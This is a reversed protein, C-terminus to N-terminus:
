ELAVHTGKVSVSIVVLKPLRRSGILVSSIRTKQLELFQRRSPEYVQQYLQMTWPSQFEMGPELEKPLNVTANIRTLRPLGPISKYDYDVRHLAEVTRIDCSLKELHAAVLRILKASHKGFDHKMILKQIHQAHQPYRLLFTCLSRVARSTNLHITFTQIVNACDHTIAHTWRCARSLATFDRPSSRTAHQVILLQLEYPLDQMKRFGPKAAESPLRKSFLSITSWGKMRETLLQHDSSDHLM